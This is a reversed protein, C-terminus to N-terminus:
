RAQSNLHMVTHYFVLINTTTTTTTMTMTTTTTTLTTVATAEGGERERERIVSREKGTSRKFWSHGGGSV